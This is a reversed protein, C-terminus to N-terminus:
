LRKTRSVGQLAGRFSDFEVPKRLVADAGADLFTAQDEPMINGTVGIIVYNRHPYLQRIRRTAEPGTM